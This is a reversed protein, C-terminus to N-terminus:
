KCINFTVCRSVIVPVLIKTVAEGVTTPRALYIAESVIFLGVTKAFHLDINNACYLVHSNCKIVYSLDSYTM